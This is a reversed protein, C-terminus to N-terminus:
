NARQANKKVGEVFIPWLAGPFEHGMGDIIHLESNEISKELERSADPSILRDSGGHIILTPAIISKVLEKQSPSRTMADSQRQVGSIDPCRDWMIGALKALWETDQPYDRSRCLAEGPVYQAIFEEKTRPAPQSQREDIADGAIGYSADATTFFLNLSLVREPHRAALEIAIMGGMSQGLIHAKEIDLQDLLVVADNAMDAVTYPTHPFKTSQGIDRNDYVVVRFGAATLMQLFEPRWGVMQASLGQILVLTPDTPDGYEEYALLLDDQICVSTM